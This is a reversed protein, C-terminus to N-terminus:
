KIVQGKKNIDFSEGDLTVSAKGAEFSWAWEYKIPIVIEGKKNIFGWKKNKEVRALGETFSDANTYQPSVIEMGLNSIFGYKGNVEVLALGEHFNDIFDYKCPVLINGNKDAIGYYFGSRCILFLSDTKRSIETYIAPLIQKGDPSYMGYLGGKLVIINGNLITIGQYLPPVIEIGKKNICGYKRNLRFVAFGQIPPIVQDYRADAIMKGDFNALGWKRGQKVPLAGEGFLYFQGPTGNIHEHSGSSHTLPGIVESVLFPVVLATKIFTEVVGPKHYKYKEPPIYYGASDFWDKFALGNKNVLNWKENKQVAFAKGEEDSYIYDFGETAKLSNGQLYIMAYSEDEKIRAFTFGKITDITYYPGLILEGSKNIYHFGKDSKVAAFGSNFSSVEAFKFDIKKEGNTDIFGWLKGNFVAAYNDSFAFASDYITEIKEDGNSDIFGWKGQYQVLRLGETATIIIDYKKSNGCYTLSFILCIFVTIKITFDVIRKTLAKM